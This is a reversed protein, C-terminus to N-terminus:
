DRQERLGTTVTRFVTPPPHCAHNQLSNLNLKCLRQLQQRLAADQAITRGAAGKEAVAALVGEVITETVGSVSMRDHAATAPVWAPGTATAAAGGSKGGEKFAPLKVTSEGGLEFSPTDPSLLYARVDTAGCFLKLYAATHAGAQLLDAETSHDGTAIAVCSM